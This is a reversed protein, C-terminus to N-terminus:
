YSSIVVRAWIVFITMLWIDNEFTVMTVLWIGNEFAQLEHKKAFIIKTKKVQYNEQLLTVSFSFFINYGIQFYM